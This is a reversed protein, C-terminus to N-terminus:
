KEEKRGLMKEIQRSLAQVDLLPETEDEDQQADKLDALVASPPIFDRTEFVRSDKSRHINCLVAAIQATSFEARDAPM